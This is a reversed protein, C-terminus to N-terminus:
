DKQYNILLFVDFGNASQIVSFRKCPGDDTAAMSKFLLM